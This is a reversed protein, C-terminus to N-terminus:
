PSNTQIKEQAEWAFGLLDLFGSPPVDLGFDAPSCSSMFLCQYSENKRTMPLVVFFRFFGFDRSFWSATPLWTTLPFSPLRTGLSTKLLDWAIGHWGRSDEDSYSIPQEDSGGAVLLASELDLFIRKWFSGASLLLWSINLDTVLTIQTPKTTRKKNNIRNITGFPLLHVTSM